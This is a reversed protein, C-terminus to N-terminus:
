ESRGVVVQELEAIYAAPTMDIVDVNRRRWFERELPPPGAHVSWSRYRLPEEGWLRELVVRLTWDSLTYGLLLLHTRRLRAALAVPLRGAIDGYHIFDDETVAFSEWAREPSADLRGQLHLVVTRREPTLETANANPREIPAAVGDPSVHCFSGRHRGSAIYSVSDFVEGAEELAQGLALEYGTTVFLPHVADRGRLMAPLAALFRHLPRPTGDAAVLAHLTDYLPGSGNLTAIAQSVRALEPREADLGFRRALETALPEGESGIVVTVRGELLLAALEEFHEPGPTTGEGPPPAEQRLISGHLRQLLPSPEIGLSEVLATRGARYVALADAQRGSRYLALMLQGRLRERLPHERVLAELDSVLASHRGVALEAEAREEILALRLEVLRAIEAQAFSEYALEALPEGRWLSLAEGLMRARRSPDSARAEDVLRRARALDLQGAEVRILYGPPRTEITEAGLVKRLQSVFNQLSATATAPPDGSWLAEILRDTSVVRGAELLLLALVGRQKTGGLALSRGDAVAELPGLIRFEIVPLNYCAL